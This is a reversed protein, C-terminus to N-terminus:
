AQQRDEADARAIAANVMAKGADTLRYGRAHVPEFVGEGLKGKMRGVVQRLSPNGEGKYAVNRGNFAAAGIATHTACSPHALALLAAFRSEQDTLGLVRRLIEAAREFTAIQAKRALHENEVQLRALAEGEPLPKIQQHVTGDPSIRVRVLYDGEQLGPSAPIAVIQATM